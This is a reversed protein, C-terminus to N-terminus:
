SVVAAMREGLFAADDGVWGLLASARTHQWSLGLTYLGPSPTVGRDQRVHGREDKADPIDIWSHDVKFGTAWVVAAFESRSGDEFTITRGNGTAARSRIRVGHQKALRKPGDGIVQDRDALRRGLRSDVTIRSTLGLASGWWWLDRGLLRQPVTPIRKGVSLHVDRSASLERAIQCGSNGAGVVLVDGPPLLDPRRYDVSHIQAVEADLTEGMPPLFPVHFPGTAVVVQKAEFVEQSAKAIYVGDSCSLSTVDTGMQIPLDFKTAYLRLYDAVDDKGPYTDREADFALGPLNDYQAPTFLTLSDWRSRWTHGVEAGADLIRFRLGRQALEYGMALGAQGGGIVLADLPGSSSPEPSVPTAQAMDQAARIASHQEDSSAM